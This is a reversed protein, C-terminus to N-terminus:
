RESSLLRPPSSRTWPWPTSVTAVMWPRVLPIQQGILIGLHDDGTGLDIKVVPGPGNEWIANVNDNGGGSNVTITSGAGGVFGGDATITDNGGGTTVSLKSGVDGEATVTNNGEGANITVTGNNNTFAAITDNGSGAVISVVAANFSNTNITNGGNGATIKINSGVDDGGEADSDVRIDNAGNGVTIDATLKGTLAAGDPDNGADLDIETAGVSNITV